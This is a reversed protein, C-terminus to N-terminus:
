NAASPPALRAEQLAIAQACRRLRVSVDLAELVSQREGAGLILLHACADALLGPDRSRPLEFEVERGARRVAALFRTASAVLSALDQDVNERTFTDLVVACARRYPPRFPLETLMVRARGVVLLEFRGDPLRAHDVIEGLGSVQCMRPRGAADLEGPEPIQTVCLRRDSALVDETMKRYRPEFIHLPLPAGPFLVVEPLPFVAVDQLETGPALGATM